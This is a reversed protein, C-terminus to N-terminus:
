TLLRWRLFVYDPSKNGTFTKYNSLKSVFTKPIFVITLFQNVYSYRFGCEKTIKLQCKINSYRFYSGKTSFLGFCKILITM